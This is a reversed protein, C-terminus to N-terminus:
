STMRGHLSSVLGQMDWASWVRANKEFSERVYPVLGPALAPTQALRDQESFSLQLPHADIRLGFARVGEGIILIKKRGLIPFESLSLLRGLDVLPVPTGRKNLMGIFWAPTNPLVCRPLEDFVEGKTREPLLLGVGDVLFGHARILSASESEPEWVASTTSM